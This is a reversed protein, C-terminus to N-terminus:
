RAEASSLGNHKKWNPVGPSDEAYERLFVPAKATGYIKKFYWDHDSSFMYSVPDTRYPAQTIWEPTTFSVVKTKGRVVSVTVAGPTLPLYCAQLGAQVTKREIGNVFLVAPEKLITIVEIRDDEERPYEKGLRLAISHEPVTASAYKKFVVAARETEVPDAAGHWRRKYYNLISGPVFNHNIEPALHTAEGYDNWTAVSILPTDIEVALELLGRYVATLRCPHYARERDEVPVPNDMSLPNYKGKPYDHGYFGPYVTVSFTRNRKKAVAGIGRFYEIKDGDIWTQVAPFYDFVANVHNENQPYMLHYVYATRIGMAQALHEYAEAVAKVAAPDNEVVRRNNAPVKDALTDGNWLYIIYRGDPTKLWAPSNKKESLIGSIMKAWWAIRQQETGGTPGSLCLTLKFDPFEREAVTFFTLIIRNFADLLGPKDMPGLPYFFQFGDIGLAQAAKLEERAVDEDSREGIKYLTYHMPLISKSLAIENRTKGNTGFLPPM